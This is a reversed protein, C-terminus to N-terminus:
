YGLVSPHLVAVKGGIIRTAGPSFMEVLWPYAAGATESVICLAGLVYMIGLQKDSRAAAASVLMKCSGLLLPRLAKQQMVLATSATVPFPRAVGPVIRQRDAPMLMARHHWIDLLELYLQQLQVRSLEMFWSPDTYYGLTEMCSFVDTASLSVAQAETVPQLTNWSKVATHRTLRRLFLPPLPARNFPNMPAEGAKKAHDLLSIASKADMIYGKGADVFSVFDRLAIETVPDSSFFDYPNNSLEPHYRLPGARRAIWRSWARRIRVVALEKAIKPKAATPTPAGGGAGAGAGAVKIPVPAVVPAFRIKTNQHRGCWETGPKAAASCQEDPHTKARINACQHTMGVIPKTM